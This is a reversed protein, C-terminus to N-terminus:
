NAVAIAQLTDFPNQVNKIATDIISRLIAYSDADEDSKFFGSVKQKVKFNRVARESANNDPPIEPNKLFAFLYDDYKIM